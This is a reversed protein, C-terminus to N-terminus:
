VCCCHPHKHAHMSRPMDCACAHQSASMSREHKSSGANPHSEHLFPSQYLVTCDFTSSRLTHTIRTFGLVIHAPPNHWCTTSSSQAPDPATSVANSPTIQPLQKSVVNYACAAPMLWTHSGGGLWDTDGCTPHKQQVHECPRPSCTHDYTPPKGFAYIAVALLM